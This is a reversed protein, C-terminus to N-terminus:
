MKQMMLQMIEVMLKHCDPHDKYDAFMDRGGGLLVDRNRMVYELAPEKIQPYVPVVNLLFNCINRTDLELVVMDQCSEALDYLRYHHAVLMLDQYSTAKVAGGSYHRQLNWQILPSDRYEEHHYLTGYPKNGADAPTSLVFDALDVTTRIEGTYIFRLLACFTALSYQQVPYVITRKSTRIDATPSFASAATTYTSTQHFITNPDSCSYQPPGTSSSSPTRNNKSLLETLETLKNNLEAMSSSHDDFLAQDLISARELVLQHAWLRVNPYTDDSPFVFCVDVSRSDGLLDPLIDHNKTPLNHPTRAMTEETSLVIDFDLDKDGGVDLLDIQSGSTLIQPPIPCIVARTVNSTPILHMSKFTTPCVEQYSSQYGDFLTSQIRQVADVKVTAVGQRKSRSLRIVWSLTGDTNIKLQRNTDPLAVNRIRLTVEEVASVTPDKM